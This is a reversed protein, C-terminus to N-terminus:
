LSFYNFFISFIFFVFPSLVPFPPSTPSSVIFIFIFCLVILYFLHIFSSLLFLLRDFHVEDNTLEFDFINFNEAIREIKTSKSVVSVNRQVNWRLIIQATSKNHSAPLLFSLFYFLFFFFLPSCSFFLFHPFSPHRAPLHESIHIYVCLSLSRSLSLYFSLSRSLYTSLYLSFSLYFSLPLFISAHLLHSTIPM